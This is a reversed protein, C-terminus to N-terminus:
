QRLLGIVVYRADDFEYSCTSLAIVQDGTSYRVPSIFTTHSSAYTLLSEVNVQYMFARDRWEGAGIICGYLLDVRYNGHESYLYMYPHEDYYAQKKYNSISGFMKGSKMKHGYIVTLADSFDAACNYDIFLTGNNNYTGDPLHHLYYDYDDAWVIPYDIVTDPSFLWAAINANITKLASFDINMAPIWLGPAATDPSIGNPASILKVPGDPRALLALGQYSDDGEQYIQRIKWIKYGSVLMLCLSITLIFWIIVRFRKPKKKYVM